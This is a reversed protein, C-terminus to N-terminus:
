YSIPKTEWPKIVGDIVPSYRTIKATTGDIRFMCDLPPGKVDKNKMEVYYSGDYIYGVGTFVRDPYEKKFVSLARNFSM